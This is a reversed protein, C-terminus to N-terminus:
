RVLRTLQEVVADATMVGVHRTAEEGRADFYVQTPIVRIGYTRLLEREKLVDLVLVQARGALQPEVERMVAIMERCGACAASGFEVVVPRGSRRAAEVQEAGTEPSGSARPSEVAPAVVLGAPECAALLVATAAGAVCLPLFSALRSM